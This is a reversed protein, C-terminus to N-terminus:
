RSEELRDHRALCHDRRQPIGPRLVAGLEYAHMGGLGWASRRGHECRCPSYVLFGLTLGPGTGPPRWGRLHSAKLPCSTYSSAAPCDCAWGAICREPRRDVSITAPVRRFCGGLGARSGYFPFRWPCRQGNRTGDEFGASRTTDTVSTPDCSPVGNRANAASTRWPRVSKSASAAASVSSRRAPGSREPCASGRM